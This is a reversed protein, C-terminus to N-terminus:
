GPNLLDQLQEAALGLNEWQVLRSAHVACVRLATPSLFVEDLEAYYVSSWQLPGAKVQKPGGQLILLEKIVMPQYVKGLLNGLAERCLQREESKLEQM